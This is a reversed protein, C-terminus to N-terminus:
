VWFNNREDITPNGDRIYQYIKHKYGIDQGMYDKFWVILCYSGPLESNGFSDGLTRLPLVGFRQVVALKIKANRTIPFLIRKNRIGLSVEYADSTYTDDSDTLPEFKVKCYLDASVKKSLIKCVSNGKGVALEILWYGKNGDSIKEDLPCVKLDQFLSKIAWDKLRDYALNSMIGLGWGVPIGLIFSLWNWNM